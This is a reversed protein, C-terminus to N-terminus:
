SDLIDRVKRLLAKTNFPKQIFDVPQSHGESSIDLTENTYGSMFLVRIRSNFAHVEKALEIGGLEPMVVDTLILDVEVECGRQKLYSLADRGNSAEIVEYGNKTLAKSCLTRLNIDDDVLLISECGRVGVVPVNSLVSQHVQEHVQPLYIKFSSGLGPESYVWITGMSQKIIGYVTALGLGTGKQGNESKNTYFPEFIMKQTEHDMGTGNDSVTILIHPGPDVTLHTSTFKEDLIIPQTEITITGGSKPIADRANIVLNLIVQEMQSTDAKIFRKECALHTKIQISTPILRKFMDLTNIILEDPNVVEFSVVERSSFTLLQRTLAAGSDIIKKMGEVSEHVAKPDGREDDLLDCYMELAGLMNNYDHAVGGALRGIADMKQLQRLNEQANKLEEIRDAVVGELEENNYKLFQEYQKQVTIDHFVAVAGEVNGEVDKLSRATVSLFINDSENKGEVLLEKGDCERGDLVQMLPDDQIVLTTGSVDKFVGETQKWLTDYIPFHEQGIIKKLASNHLIVKGASNIAVVADGATELVSSLLQGQKKLAQDLKSVSRGALWTIVGLVGMTAVVMLSRGYDDDFIGAREGFLELWGLAIPVLIVSPLMRRIMHGAIDDRMIVAIIGQEHRASVIGLSLVLFCISTHVAMPISDSIGYLYKADYIYGTLALLSMAVVFICLWDVLHVRQLFKTDLFLLALGLTFFLIATNPAMRNNGLENAFLIKDLALDWGFSALISTGSFFVVFGALIFATRRIKNIQTKEIQFWLSLGAMAFAVATLPNMAVYDSRFVDLLSLSFIWGFIVACCILLVFIVSLKTLWQRHLFKNTAM